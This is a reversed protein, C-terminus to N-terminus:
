EGPRNWGIVVRTGQAGSDITVRGGDLELIRRIISERVGFHAAGIAEPDFGPGTDSITVVITGDAALVSGSGGVAHRAANRAAEAAALGVTSAAVSSVWGATVASAVAVGPAAEATLARILEAADSSRLEIPETVPEGDARALSRLAVSASRRLEEPPEGDFLLAAGFTALVEDHVERAFAEFGASAAQIREDEARLQETVERVRHYEVLQARLSYVLMVVAINACHVFGAALVSDPIDGLFALASLPVAASFAIVAALVYPIRLVLVLSSLAIADWWWSQPSPVFEGNGTWALCSLLLALFLVAPQAIWIARLVVAPLRFWGVAALVLLLPPISLLLGWWPAFQGAQALLAPISALAAAIGLLAIGLGISRDVPSWTHTM